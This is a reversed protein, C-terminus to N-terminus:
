SVRRNIADQMLCYNVISLEFIALILYLVNSSGNQVGNIRDVREGMKYNWYWGYIGCTVITLIVVMAGSTANPEGSLQNIEDNLKVLWYIGYIGCTVISLIIATVINRPAINTPNPNYGMNQFTQNIGASAQQFGQQFNQQANQFNPNTQQFSQNPAGFPTGCSSCVNASDDSPSGCKPCYKM